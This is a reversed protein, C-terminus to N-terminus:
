ESLTDLALTALGFERRFRADLAHRGIYDAVAPPVLPRWDGGQAMVRRVQTGDLPLRAEPPVLTVPRVVRYVESMLKAVYPNDSVFVDLPGFRAHVMARWRPGDDLDDVPVLTYNERGALALGIMDRTEDLTFPNRVNYRNASGIGILAHEAAACLAHLVAAHGLHVPRWRAIMGLRAFSVRL